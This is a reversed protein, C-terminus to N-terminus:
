INHFYLNEKHSRLLVLALVCFILFVSHVIKEPVSQVNGIKSTFSIRTWHDFYFIHFTCKAEWYEGWHSSLDNEKDVKAVSYFQWYISQVLALLGAWSDNGFWNKCHERAVKVKKDLHLITMSSSFGQEEKQSNKNGRKQM